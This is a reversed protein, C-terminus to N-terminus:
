DRATPREAAAATERIEDLLADADVGLIEAASSVSLPATQTSMNDPYRLLTRAGADRASPLASTISYKIRNAPRSARDANKELESVAYRDM